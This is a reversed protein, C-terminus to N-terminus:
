GVVGSSDERGIYKGKVSKKEAKWEGMRDKVVM